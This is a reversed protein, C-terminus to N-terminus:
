IRANSFKCGRRFDSPFRLFRWVRADPGGGRRGVTRGGCASGSDLSWFGDSGSMRGAQFNCIRLDGFTCIRLHNSFKCQSNTSNQSNRSFYGILRSSYQGESPKDAGRSRRDHNDLFFLKKFDTIQSNASQSNTVQANSFKCESHDPLFLFLFIRPLLMGAEAQGFPEEPSGTSASSPGPCHRSEPAPIEHRSGWFWQFISRHNIKLRTGWCRVRSPKDAQKKNDPNQRIKVSHYRRRGSM